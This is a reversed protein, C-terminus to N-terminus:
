VDFYSIFLNKEYGMYYLVTHFHTLLFHQYLTEISDDKMKEKCVECIVDNEPTVTVIVDDLCEGFRMADRLM